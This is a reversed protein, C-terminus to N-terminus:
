KTHMDTYLDDFPHNSITREKEQMETSDFEELDVILQWCYHMIQNWILKLHSSYIYVQVGLNTYSIRVLEM